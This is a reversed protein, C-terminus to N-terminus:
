APWPAEVPNGASSAILEDVVELVAAVTLGRMCLHSMACPPFYGDDHCPSCPVTEPGLWLARGLPGRPRYHEPDTPGFIGITPLGLAGALHLLLTDNAVALSCVSLVAASQPVTLLGALNVGVDPRGLLARDEGDGLWVVRRGRQELSLAMARYNEVPWSKLATRTKVNRGGGFGLAVWEASGPDFGHGAAVQLGEEREGDPFQWTGALSPAKRLGSTPALPWTDHSQTAMGLYQDVHHERAGAHYPHTLLHAGGGRALGRRVPIGALMALLAYRPDRHFILVEAPGGQRAKVRWARLTRLLGAATALREGRTGAFLRRDDLKVVHDFYPLRNAVDACSEGVLLTIDADPRTHRLHRFTPAALLLDGRSAVKILLLSHM